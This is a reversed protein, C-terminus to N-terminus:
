ELTIFGIRLIGGILMNTPLWSRMPTESAKDGM